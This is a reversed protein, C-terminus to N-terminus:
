FLAPALERQEVGQTIRGSAWVTMNPQGANYSQAVELDRYQKFDARITREFLGQSKLLHSLTLHSPLMGQFPAGDIGHAVRPDGDWLPMPLRQFSDYVPMVLSLDNPQGHAMQGLAARNGQAWNRLHDRLQKAQALQVDSAQALLVAATPQSGAADASPQLQINRFEGTEYPRTELRFEKIQTPALSTTWTAANSKGLLTLPNGPAAGKQLVQLLAVNRGADSKLLPVDRGADDVAGLRWDINSLPGLSGAFYFVRAKGQSDSCTVRPKGDLALSITTPQVSPNSSARSSSSTAPPPLATAIRWPGAAVGCRITCSHTGTPYLEACEAGSILGTFFQPASGDMLPPVVVDRAVPHPGNTVIHYEGSMDAPKSAGPFQVFLRIPSDENPRWRGGPPQVAVRFIYPPLNQTKTTTWHWHGNMGETQPPAPTGDSRWWPNGYMDWEKGMQIAQTVGVLSIVYGNTLRIRPGSAVTVNEAAGTSAEPSAAQHADDASTVQPEDGALNSDTGVFFPPTIEQQSGLTGSTQTIRGSAWLIVHSSGPNFSRAFEFDQAPRDSQANQPVSVFTPKQGDRGTRPDGDRIHSFRSEGQWLPIPLSQLSQNVALAASLDTPPAQSMAQLFAKHSKAWDQLHYRLHLAESVYYGQSYLGWKKQSLSNAAASQVLAQRVFTAPTPPSLSASLLRYECVETPKRTAKFWDGFAGLTTFSGPPPPEDIDYKTLRM